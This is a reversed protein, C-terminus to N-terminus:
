GQFGQNGWIALRLLRSSHELGGSVALQKREDSMLSSVFTCSPHLSSCPLNHMCRGTIQAIDLAGFSHHGFLHMPISRLCILYVSQPPPMSGDLCSSALANNVDDPFLLADRTTSCISVDRTVHLSTPLLEAFGRILKRARPRARSWRM